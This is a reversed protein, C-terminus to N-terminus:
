SGTLNGKDRVRQQSNLLRVSRKTSMIARRGHPAWEAGLSLVHLLLALRRERAHAFYSQFPPLGKGVATNERRVDRKSSVLSVLLPTTLCMEMGPAMFVRESLLRPLEELKWGQSKCDM